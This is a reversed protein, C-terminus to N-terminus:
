FCLQVPTNSNTNDYNSNNFRFGSPNDDKDLAWWPFYKRENYNNFDPDWKKGKNDKRNAADVLVIAKEFAIGHPTGSTFKADTPNEGTSACAEEFTKSYM